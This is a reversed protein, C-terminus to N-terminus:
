RAHMILPKNNDKELGKAIKMEKNLRWSETKLTGRDSPAKKRHRMLGTMWNKVIMNRGTKIAIFELKEDEQGCEARERFIGLDKLKDKIDNSLEAEGEQGSIITKMTEAHKPWHFTTSNNSMRKRKDKKINEMKIHHSRKETEVM